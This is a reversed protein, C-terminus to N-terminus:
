TLDYRNFSSCPVAVYINESRRKPSEDQVVQKLQEDDDDETYSEDFEQQQLIMPDFNRLITDANSRFRIPGRIQISDLEDVEEELVSLDLSLDREIEESAEDYWTAIKHRIDITDSKTNKPRAGLQEEEINNENVDEFYEEDITEYVNRPPPQPPELVSNFYYLIQLIQIIVNKQDCSGNQQFNIM